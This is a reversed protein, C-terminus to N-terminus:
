AAPRGFVGNREFISRIHETYEGFKATARVSSARPRALDIDIVEAIRGPRASMVAVRDSLFVAEAIGHTVFL